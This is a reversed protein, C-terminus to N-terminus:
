TVKSLGNKAILKLQVKFIGYEKLLEAHISKFNNYFYPSEHINDKYRLYLIYYNAIKHYEMKM